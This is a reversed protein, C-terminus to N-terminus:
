LKKLNEKMEKERGGERFAVGGQGRERERLFRETSKLILESPVKLSLHQCSRESINDSMGDLRPASNRLFCYNKVAKKWRVLGKEVQIM